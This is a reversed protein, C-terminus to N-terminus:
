AARAQIAAGSVVGTFTTAVPGTLHIAADGGSWAARLEGGDMAIAVEGDLLGRRMGAAAAACAGSGCAPTLGAGREWVRLRMAGRDYIQAVGVNARQPFIVQDCGVGWRRDALAQAEDATPAGGGRADLIVFDNGAGHAKVFPRGRAGDSAQKRSMVTIHGWLDSGDM